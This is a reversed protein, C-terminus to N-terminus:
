LQLGRKAIEAQLKPIDRKRTAPRTVRDQLATNSLQTVKLRDTNTGIRPSAM